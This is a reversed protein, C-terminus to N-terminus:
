GILSMQGSAEYHLRGTLDLELLVLHVQSVSAGSREVLEDVSVPVPGMLAIIEQRQTDSIDAPPLVPRAPQQKSKTELQRNEILPLIVDLVDDINEVLAAGQRLLHNSGHCRMDLPSGPVAMVERGYEGAM